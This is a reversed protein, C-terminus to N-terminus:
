KIKDPEYFVRKTLDGSNHWEIVDPFCAPIKEKQVYNALEGLMLAMIRLRSVAKDHYPNIKPYLNARVNYNRKRMEEVLSYGRIPLLKGRKNEVITLLGGESIRKLSFIEAGTILHKERKSIYYKSSDQLDEAIKIPDGKLLVDWNYYDVHRNTLEDDSCNGIAELYEEFEM